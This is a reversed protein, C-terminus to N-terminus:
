YVTIHDKLYRRNTTKYQFLFISFVSFFGVRGCFMMFSIILKSSSSLDSTVGRSLGVTGWASFTEFIVDLTKLSPNLKILLIFSIFVLVLSGFIVTLAKQVSEPSIERGFIECHNKGRLQNVMHITAIALTTCKIGGATSIPAAGVWMLFMLLSSAGVSLSETPWLNFGATRSTVSLFLSQTIKGGLTLKSFSAGSELYFVGLFGILLLAATSVFVLKTHTSLVWRLNKARSNRFVSLMNLIVPFGLGGVIVLMVITYVYLYNTELNLSNLSNSFLSFGANCFASISHFVCEFIVKLTIETNNLYKNLLLLGLGLGEFFLTFKLVDSFVRKAEHITNTDFMQKLLVSQGVGLQGAFFVAFTMSITMIGLGGIQFLSMIVVLGVPTFVETIQVTSLGTVCIASTAIFIADVISIGNYSSGPLVLLVTGVFIASLFSLFIVEHAKFKRRSIVRFSLLLSVSSKILLAAAILGLSLVSVDQPSLVLNEVKLYKILMLAAMLLLALIELKRQTFFEKFGVFVLRLFEEFLFLVMAVNSIQYFFSQVDQDINFFVRIFLSILCTLGFSFYLVNLPKSYHRKRFIM